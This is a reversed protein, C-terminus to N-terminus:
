YIVRLFSWRTATNPGITEEKTLRWTTVSNEASGTGVLWLRAPVRLILREGQM